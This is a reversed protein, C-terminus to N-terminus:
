NNEVKGINPKLVLLDVSFVCVNTNKHRKSSVVTNEPCLRYIIGESLEPENQGQVVDEAWVFSFGQTTCKMM